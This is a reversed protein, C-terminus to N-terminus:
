ASKQIEKVISTVSKKPNQSVYNKVTRTVDHSKSKRVIKMAETINDGKLKKSM